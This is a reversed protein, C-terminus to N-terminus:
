VKENEKPASGKTTNSKEIIIDELPKGKTEPLLISLVANMLM